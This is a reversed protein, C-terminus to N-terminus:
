KALIRVEVRRNVEGEEQTRENDRIPRTRGFGEYQMREAAIGRDILYQYIMKARDVSLGWTPTNKFFGDPYVCCCVHGELKIKLNPNDTMVKYLNEMEGSSGPMVVAKGTYFRIHKLRITTNVKLRKIDIKTFKPKSEKKAPPMIVKPKAPKIRSPKAKAVPPPPKKVKRIFIDTRRNRPNGEPGGQGSVEGLGTCVMIQKPKIGRQLLYRKVELARSDSLHQNPSETGLYDAYSYILLKRNRIHRVLSDLMRKDSPQLTPIGIDYRIHITDFYQAYGKISCCLLILVLLRYM